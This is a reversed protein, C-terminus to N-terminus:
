GARKNNLFKCNFLDIFSIIKHEALKIIQAKWLFFTMLPKASNWVYLATFKSKGWFYNPWGQSFFLNSAESLIVNMIFCMFPMIHVQKATVSLHKRQLARETSIWLHFQLASGDRNPHLDMGTEILVVEKSEWWAALHRWLSKSEAHFISSTLGRKLILFFCLCRISILKLTSM